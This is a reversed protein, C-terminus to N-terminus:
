VRLVQDFRVKSGNPTPFWRRCVRGPGDQSVSYPAGTTSTRAVDAGRNGKPFAFIRYEVGGTGTSPDEDADIDIVVRVGGPDFTDPAFRVTFRTVGAATEWSTLVLGPDGRQYRADDPPAGTASGPV